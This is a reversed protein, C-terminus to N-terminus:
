RDALVASRVQDDLRQVAPCSLSSALDHYRVSLIRRMIEPLHVRHAVDLVESLLACAHEIESQRAWATALDILVASRQSIMGPNTSAAAEELITVADPSNLLVACCGRYGALRRASWGTFFGEGPSTASALARHAADLDRSATLADGDAASEEARRTLLWTRLFPPGQPGAVAEAEKLMDAAIGPRGAPRGSDINSYLCSKATLALALMHADGVERAAAQALSYYTTADGLNRLRYAVSGAMVATESVLILLERALPRSNPVRLSRVRRLHRDVLLMLATPSSTDYANELGMTVALLSALLSADLTRRRDLTVALHEQDLADSGDTLSRLRHITRPPGKALGLEENKAGTVKCIVLQHHPEPWQRGCEWRSVTNGDLGTVDMGMNEGARRLRMALAVQTWGRELRRRRLEEPFYAGRAEDFSLNM